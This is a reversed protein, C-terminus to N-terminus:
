ENVGASEDCKMLAKGGYVTLRRYSSRGKASSIGVEFNKGPGM